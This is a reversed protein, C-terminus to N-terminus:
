SLRPLVADAVLELLADDDHALHQLMVRDIGAEAYAGLRAVAADPTGAVGVEALRALYDDVTRPSGLRELLRAARDRVEDDTRGVLAPTMLSLPIPAREAAACAADLAARLERCREPGLLMTNWEDAYRAALAPTRRPGVGGVILRPRPEPVPVFRADHLQEFEGDFSFREVDPDWLGRLVQLHEELRRFRADLAEFPFGHQRHESEMWGTGLGLEIRSAGDRTGAMEAVTAVVKALNGAPRFTVPTVLVGLGIARTDRALGALAAWADTSGPEADGADAGYHDSRFVADFGLREATRAVALQDDYTLGFQPELMIALRM